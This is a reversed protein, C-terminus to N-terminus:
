LSGDCSIDILQDREQVSLNHLGTDSISFPDRIWSETELNDPFYSLFNNILGICHNQIDDILQETLSFNNDQPFEEITPLLEINDSKM